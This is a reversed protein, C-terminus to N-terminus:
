PRLLILTNFSGSACRESGADSLRILMRIECTFTVFVDGDARLLLVELKDDSFMSSANIKESGAYDPSFCEEDGM